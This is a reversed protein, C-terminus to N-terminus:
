SIGMLSKALKTHYANVEYSPGNYAMAFARCDEPNSSLARLEDKLGNFEIFRALLEYHASEGEMLSSALDFPSAYNLNKWHDGMVQFRGWSASSFAADPDVRCAANLKSWSDEGYGGRRPDSFSTVSWKGGTLRHFYHREYLLKLRGNRDFGGGTSEVAGVAALQGLKCGLRQAIAEIASAPAATPRAATFHALLAAGSKTGWLGDPSVGLRNQLDVVNM